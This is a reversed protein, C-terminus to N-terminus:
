QSSSNRKKNRREAHKVHFVFDNQECDHSRYCAASSCRSPTHLYSIYIQIYLYHLVSHAFLLVGLSTTTQEEIGRSPMAPPCWSFCTALLCLKIFSFLRTSERCVAISWLLLFRHISLCIFMYVHPCIHRVGRVNGCNM